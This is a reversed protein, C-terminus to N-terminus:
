RMHACMALSAREPRVNRQECLASCSTRSPTGHIPCTHLLKWFASYQDALVVCLGPLMKYVKPWMMSTYTFTPSSLRPPLSILAKDGRQMRGRSRSWSMQAPIPISWSRGGIEKCGPFQCDEYHHSVTLHLHHSSTQVLSFLVFM